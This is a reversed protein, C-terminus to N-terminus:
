LVPKIGIEAFSQRIKTPGDRELIDGHNMVVRDFDWRLIKDLSRGVLNKNKVFVWKFVRSPGFRKYIKNIQFLLKEIGTVHDQMNFVLDTVVLTKSVRHFFVTENLFRLGAVAHVEVEKRLEASWGTHAAGPPYFRALPFRKRYFEGDSNHFTNPAVIHTVLGLAELKAYDREEMRIPNIIVLERSRIRLITMRRRFRTSGWDGDMTYLDPEIERISDYPEIKSPLKAKAM